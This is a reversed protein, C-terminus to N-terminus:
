PVVLGHYYSLLHRIGLCPKVKTLPSLQIEVLDSYDVIRQSAVLNYKALTNQEQVYDVFNEM